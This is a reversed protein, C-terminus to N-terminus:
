RAPTKGAREILRNILLEVKVRDRGLLTEKYQEPNRNVTVRLQDGQALEVIYICFGTWSRHIFLKEGEYYIFWKDEMEKPRHGEKLIERERDTLSKELLFDIRQEPMDVTKWDTKQVMRGM